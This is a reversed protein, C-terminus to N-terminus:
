AVCPLLEWIGPAYEDVTSHGPPPAAGSTLVSSWRALRSLISLRPIHRLHWATSYTTIM